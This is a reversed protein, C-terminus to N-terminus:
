FKLNSMIGDLTKEVDQDDVKEDPKQGKIETLESQLGDIQTKLSKVVEVLGTLMNQQSTILQELNQSM